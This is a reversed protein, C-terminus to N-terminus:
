ISFPVIQSRVQLSDLFIREKEELTLRILKGSNRDTMCFEEDPICEEPNKGTEFFRGTEEDYAIEKRGSTITKSTGKSEGEDEEAMFLLSRSSPLFATKASLKTARQLAGSFGSVRSMAAGLLALFLARRAM